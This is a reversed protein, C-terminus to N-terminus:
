MKRSHVDVVKLIFFFLFFIHISKEENESVDWCGWKGEQTILRHIRDAGCILPDCPPLWVPWAWLGGTCRSESCAGQAEPVVSCARGLLWATVHKNSPHQAHYVGQLEENDNSDHNNSPRRKWSFDPHAPLSLPMDPCLGAQDLKAQSGEM